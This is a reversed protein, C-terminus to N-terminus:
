EQTIRDVAQKYFIANAIAGTMQPQLKSLYDIDETTFADNGHKKDFLFAGVLEGPEGIPLVMAVKLSKLKKEVKGLLEKEGNSMEEIMYPIEEAVLVKPNSKLYQYVPGTSELVINKDDKYSELKGTQKNLWIFNVKPTALYTRLSDEITNILKDFQTTSNLALELKETQKIIEKNESYFLKDIIKLIFKRLPEITLVIVLIVLVLATQESWGSNEILVDKLGFLLYFYIFFLIVISTFHLLSKKLVIKIDLLRYKLISYAFSISILFTGWSGWYSRSNEIFYPFILDAIVGILSAIGFSIFIYLLKVKEIPKSQLYKKILLRFAIILYLGIYIGFLWLYDGYIPTAIGDSAVVHDVIFLNTFSLYSFILPPIVLLFKNIKSIKTKFPFNLSFLLFSPMILVGFVYTIIGFIKTELEGGLFYAGYNTMLWGNLIMVLLFYSWKIKKQQSKRLVLFAVLFNVLIILIYIITYFLIM